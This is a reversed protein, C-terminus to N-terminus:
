RTLDVLIPNCEANSFHILWLVTFMVINMVSEHRSASAERVPIESNKMLLPSM